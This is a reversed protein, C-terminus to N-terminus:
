GNANTVAAPEDLEHVLSANLDLFALCNQMYGLNAVTAGQLCRAPTESRPAAPGVM